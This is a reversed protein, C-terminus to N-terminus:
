GAVEANMQKALLQAEEPKAIEFFAFCSGDDFRVELQQLGREPGFKFDCGKGPPTGPEYPGANTWVGVCSFGVLHGVNALTSGAGALILSRASQVTGCKPCRFAVDEATVGQTATEAHFEDFTISRM